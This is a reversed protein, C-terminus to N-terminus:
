VAVHLRELTDFLQQSKYPKPLYADMGSEFCSEIEEELVSATLAIIPVRALRNKREWERIYKTATLGDMIPMMCDMLIASFHEGSVVMNLAEQGNGAIRYEMGVKSLFFSAIKQNMLNDEVILVRHRNSPAEQRESAQETACAKLNSQTLTKILSEFRHGLIPLTITGTVWNELDQAIYLNHQMLVIQANPFHQHLASLEKRSSQEKAKFYFIVDIAVDRSLAQQTDNVVSSDLGYRSCEQLVLHQHKSGNVVLLASMTGAFRPPSSLTNIEVPITFEFCSGLSRTSEVSIKGGMLDVLQKCITLGLGTGGFRRTISGDEQTFPEFIIQQKEKDIGVGSDIVACNLYNQQGVSRQKIEVSIFGEHTFKVANSLLNMLVQKFRFEDLKVLPSLAPDLKVFLENQQKLAKASIMNVTDFVVNHIVCEHPTLMLNGSEIKSLDLIDNILILLSHSSADIDALIDKQGHTLHSDSLIETMGIIGNLPTRIEHSMNALFMSKTRNAAEAQEKAQLLQEEYRLQAQMIHNLDVAFDTFEDNGDVPILTTGDNNRLRSMSQLIRSLKTNIRYLTSAGWIFMMALLLLTGVILVAFESKEERILTSLRQQFDDSFVVMQQKVLVNREGIAIAALEIDQGSVDPTILRERLHMVRRFPASSFVMLLQDLQQNDAGRNVFRELYYQERDSIRFYDAAYNHYSWALEHAQEALWAEKEMWFYLWYLDSLVMDLKIIEESTAFGSMNQVEINADNLQEYILQVSDILDSRDVLRIDNIASALDDVFQLNNKVESGTALVADQKILDRIPTLAASALDINDDAPLGELRAKVAAYTASSFQSLSELMKAKQGILLFQQLRQEIDFAFNASFGFIVTAPILSLVILRTKISLTRLTIWSTLRM